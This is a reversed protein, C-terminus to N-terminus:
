VKDIINQFEEISLNKYKSYFLKTDSSAHSSNNIGAVSKYNCVKASINGESLNTNKSMERSLEIQKGRPFNEKELKKFILFAELENKNNWNSNNRFPM